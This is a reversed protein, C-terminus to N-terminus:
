RRGTLQFNKQNMLFTDAGVNFIEHPNKNKEAGRLMAKIVM